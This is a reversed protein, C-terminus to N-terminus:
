HAPAHDRWAALYAELNPSGVPAGAELVCLGAAETGRDLLALGAPHGLLFGVKALVDAQCATAALATFTMARTGPGAFAAPQGTRPDILHHMRRGARLWWRRADGSTAVAGGGLEFGALYRPALTQADECLPAHALPKGPAEVGVLWPQGPRPGGRLRLDGGLDVLYAAFDDLFRTAVQDAAWGKAIGGLDLAAGVPLRIAHDAAHLEVARWTARHAPAGHERRAAHRHDRAGVPGRAARIDVPVVGSAEEADRPIREFSRDYGALRLAPLVTPDFLGGTEDAATLALRVVGYLDDSATFWRGAASNLACLESEPLFRSFRREMAGLWDAAADLAAHAAGARAPADARVVLRLATNMGRLQRSVLMGM